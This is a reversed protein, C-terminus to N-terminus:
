PKILVMDAVLVGGTVTGRVRVTAGAGTTFFQQGGPGAFVTQANTTVQVGLVTFSPNALNSVVGQLYTRDEPRNRQVLTAILRPSGTGEIGRAEVYDGTRLDALNFFRVNQSSRDEFSTNADTGIQVGLITLTKNAASVADVLGRVVSLKAPMVDVRSAALVGSANFTGRVRVSANVGLTAGAPSFVTTSDTTIRQSGISFDANSTFSTIVGELRGAENATASIAGLVRVLTATLVGNVVGTGRVLVTGSAALTGTPVVNSYNVTIGNISFTHATTDLSQVTGKIQLTAGAGAPEVRSAVIEGSANTTGSVEVVTGVQIADIGSPQFSQDFLTDDTIRVTQGLVTFTGSTTDVQTVPGRLDASFSVSTATGTTGDPNVTGKITVIQGVQLQGETAPQDDIQIQAGSTTYEVGGQIVSGFGNIPGVSTVGSAVPAGTGEIGAVQDAGCAVLACAVAAVAMVRASVSAAARKTLRNFM